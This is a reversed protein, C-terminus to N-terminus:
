SRCPYKEQLAAILEGKTLERQRPDEPLGDCLCPTPHVTRCVACFPPFLPVPETPRATM